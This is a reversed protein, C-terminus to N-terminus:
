AHAVWQCSIYGAAAALSAPATQKQALATTGAGLAETQQSGSGQRRRLTAGWFPESATAKLAELMRSTSGAGGM